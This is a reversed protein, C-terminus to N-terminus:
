RQPLLQGDAAVAERQEAVLEPLVRKANSLEPVAILLKEAM